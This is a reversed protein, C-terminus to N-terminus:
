GAKRRVQDRRAIPMDIEITTGAGRGSRIHMTAADGYHARLRDTVSRLGLGAGTKAATSDFGTGTDEIVLHLREERECAWLSVAGGVAVPAVGHKVANEVLPQLLLTPILVDRVTPAVEISVVLREEFRAREIDLYSSVLEVEETLTSFDAASRRLVARLLNTLRLLTELARSPASQILFGITTLANFLFHPNLQARLARLEAETALQQMQQERFNRANREATVRLSDLRRTALRAIAELLQVDDSLLRRGAALPGFLIALHPPEVTRLRLLATSGPDTFWQRLAAAGLVSKQNAEPVPDNLIQADSAGLALRAASEIHAAVESESVSAELQAAFDALTAEYDPRRLVVRDVFRAAVNRLAPFTLSTAVWLSIFLAVGAPNLAGGGAPGQLGWAVALSFLGACISVLLLLAIANKLFLDALAFRYDQHLIALALPISAHHGILDIWWSENGVHRGFHLASVAFIALAAVWIGRRGSPQGRTVVLLVATLATFGVTLLWLAPKSPVTARQLAAAINLAAAIASLSYAVGITVQIFRRGVVTERGELLSHVVVAPLFGLASFAFAVIPPLSSSHAAARSGFSIVAGVNWVVGCLGMLLPLRGRRSLFPTGEVARERWVMAVLMVYLVAGTLFGLLDILLGTIPASVVTM